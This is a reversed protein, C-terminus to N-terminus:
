RNVPRGHGRGDIDARRSQAHAHTGSTERATDEGDPAKCKISNTRNVKSPGARGDWTKHTYGRKPGQGFIIVVM